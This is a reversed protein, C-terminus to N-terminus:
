SVVDISDLYFEDGTVIRTQVSHCVPCSLDNDPHYKNKCNLCELEALIRRFHLKSDQAITNPTILDWYFQVSDDVISAYQGIVLNIDTIRNAGAAQAHRLAIELISETVSLEHM